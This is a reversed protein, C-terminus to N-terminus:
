NARPLAYVGLMCLGALAWMVLLSSVFMPFVCMAIGAGLAYGWSPDSGGTATEAAAAMPLLTTAASWFLVKGFRRM